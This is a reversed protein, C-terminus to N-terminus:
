QNINIKTTTPKVKLKSLKTGKGFIIEEKKKDAYLPFQLELWSGGNSKIELIELALEARRNSFSPKAAAVRAKILAGKDAVTMNGALVPDLSKLSVIMGEKATDSSLDATLEAGIYQLPVDVDVWRETPKEAERVQDPKTKEEMKRAEAEPEEINKESSPRDDIGPSQKQSEENGTETNSGAKKTITNKSAPQSVRNGEQVPMAKRKVEPEQLETNDPKTEWETNDDESGPADHIATVPPNGALSDDLVSLQTEGPMRHSKMGAKNKTIFWTLILLPIVFLWLWKSRPQRRSNSAEGPQKEKAMQQIEGAQVNASALVNEAKEDSQSVKRKIAEILQDFDSAEHLTINLTNIDKLISTLKAIKNRISNYLNLDETIGEIHSLTRLERIKSELEETQGEWYKVLELRDTSKAINVEDLVIPFIRELINKNEYIQLLEFMCYESHLYKQSVVVIIADAQGLSEMFKRISERYGLDKKDLIVKLGEREFRELIAHVIQESKGGWAHSIYIAPHARSM